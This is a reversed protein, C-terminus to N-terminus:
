KPAGIEDYMDNEDFPYDPMADLRAWSERICRDREARDEALARELAHRIAEDVTTRRLWALREALERARDDSIFLGIEVMGPYVSTAYLYVITTRGVLM